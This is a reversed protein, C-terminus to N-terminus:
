TDTRHSSQASEPVGKYNLSLDFATAVLRWHADDLFPPVQEGDPVACCMGTAGDRRYLRIKLDVFAGGSPKNKHHIGGAM